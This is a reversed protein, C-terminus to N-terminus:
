KIYVVVVFVVSNVKPSACLFLALDNLGPEKIPYATTAGIRNSLTSGERLNCPRIPAIRPVELLGSLGETCLIIGKNLLGSV